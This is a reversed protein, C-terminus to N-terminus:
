YSLCAQLDSVQKHLHRSFPLLLGWNGPLCPGPFGDLQPSCTSLTPPQHLHHILLLLSAWINAQAVFVGRRRAHCVPNGFVILRVRKILILCQGRGREETHLLHVSWNLLGQTNGKGSRFLLRAQFFGCRLVLQSQQTITLTRILHPSDVKEGSKISLRATAAQRHFFSFFWFANM